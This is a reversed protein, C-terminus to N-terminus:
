LLTNHWDILRKEGGNIIVFNEYHEAPELEGKMLKAFVEKVMQRENEAIVLDFWNKGILEEQTYGLVKCGKRNILTIAQDPAICVIIVGAIDLYQYARDCEAQLAEEAQTHWTIDTSAAVVEKKAPQKKKVM